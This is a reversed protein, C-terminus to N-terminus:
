VLVELADSREEFLILTTSHLHCISLADSREESVEKGGEITNLFRTLLNIEGVEQRPPPSVPGNAGRAKRRRRVFGRAIKQVEVAALNQSTIPLNWPERRLNQWLRYGQRYKRQKVLDWPKGYGKRRKRKELRSGAASRAPQATPNRLPSTHHIDVDSGTHLTQAPPNSPDRTESPPPVSPPPVFSM